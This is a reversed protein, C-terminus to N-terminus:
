PHSSPRPWPPPSWATTRPPWRPPSAGHWQTPGARCSLATPRPSVPRRDAPYATARARAPDSLAVAGHEAVIECRVDYGYGADLFTEVTPLAGDATRLLMLQPDRLGTVTSAARHALRSVETVPSDLLWPVTDFEHIASGTM